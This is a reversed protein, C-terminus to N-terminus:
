FCGRDLSRRDERESANVMLKELSPKPGGGVGWFTPGFWPQRQQRSGPSDIALNNDTTSETTAQTEDKTELVTDKITRWTMRTFFYISM